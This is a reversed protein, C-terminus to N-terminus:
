KFSLELIGNRYKCKATKVDADKPVEILRYNKNLADDNIISIEISTDNYMKVKISNKDDVLPMQTIIRILNDSRVIELPYYDYEDREERVAEKEDKYLVDPERTVKRRGGSVRPRANIYPKLDITQYEEILLEEPWGGKSYYPIDQFEDELLNEKALFDKYWEIIDQFEPFFEDYWSNIDYGGSTNFTHASISEDFHGRSIWDDLDINWFSM